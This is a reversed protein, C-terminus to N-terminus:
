KMGILGQLDKFVPLRIGLRIMMKACAHINDWEDRTHLGNSFVKFAKNISKMPNKENPTIGALKSILRNVEDIQEKYPKHDFEESLKAIGHM